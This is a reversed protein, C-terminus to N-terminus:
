LPMDILKTLEGTKLNMATKSTIKTLTDSLPKHQIVKYGGIRDLWDLHVYTCAGNINRVKFAYYGDDYSDVAVVEVQHSYFKHEVLLEYNFEIYEQGLKGNETEHCLAKIEDRGKLEVIYGLM